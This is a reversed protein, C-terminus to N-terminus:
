ASRVGAAAPWFARQVLVLLVLVPLMMVVAGAMLLPWNTADLQQLVRLGVALTYREDSKLYLLPNMFDSWYQVFTLLAVAATAPRALPMAIRAWIRLPGLGELRAAEYMAVPQRRFSWYFILVFFPSSGMWVPALLAWTTDVLGLERLVLFRTLWVATLPVMRVVVALALLAYRARPPLQAMAFGAWSAVLITLPVALGAVLLSNAAYQALPLIEFIRAYNSWAPAAPLWEITAPPPLGPRRLSAALV